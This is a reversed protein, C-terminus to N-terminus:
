SFPNHRDTHTNDVVGQIYTNTHTCTCGHMCARWHTLVIYGYLPPLMCSPVPVPININRFHIQNSVDQEMTLMQKAPNTISQPEPDSMSLM